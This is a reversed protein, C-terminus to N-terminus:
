ARSSTTSLPRCALASASVWAGGIITINKLEFGMSSLAILFGVLVLAYHMLRVISLRAGTAEMQGRSLVNEMLLGQLFWSLVFAGYLIIGALLVLGVTIQGGDTTFGFALIDHIADVPIAYIKWAVLLNAAVFFGILVNTVWVARALIINASKRLFTLHGMPFWEAALELMVRALRVIVWGMILLMATRIASDMLQASFGGLGITDALTIVVFVLTVLRLMWLHWMPTGEIRRKRTRWGYYVAGSVTWVLIFLRLLALPVGLILLLQFCIMVAVLIYIARKIWAERVFATMLRATAVGALTQILMRWLTPPSGYLFTLSFVPVLLAVSITRKGLFYRGPHSLLKSRHQRLLGLLGAFVIAQLVIVWGKDKFFGSLNFPLPRVLKGPDHLLDILQRLYALSFIVPTDSRLSGGRQQSMITDVRDQLTDIRAKIDGAKQQVTLMPELKDTLLALAENIDSGARSFAEKVSELSLDAALQERWRHWRNKEDTWARRDTEVEKITGNLATSVQDVTDNLERLAGKIGALQQYSQLDDSKFNELQSEFQGTRKKATGLQEDLKKLGDITAIKTKLTTLRQSLSGAQYVVASLSIPEPAPAPPASKGTTANEQGRAPEAAPGYVIGLILLCGIIPMWIRKTITM